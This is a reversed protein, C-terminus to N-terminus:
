PKKHTHPNTCTVQIFAVNHGRVCCLDFLGFLDTEKNFKGTKEVVDVTWGHTEFMDRCKKRIRTGKQRTRMKFDSVSIIRNRLDSQHCPVMINGIHKNM